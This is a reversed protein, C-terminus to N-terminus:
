EDSGGIIYPTVFVRLHCKFLFTSVSNPDIRLMELSVAVSADFDSLAYYTCSLLLMVALDQPHLSRLTTLLPLLQIRYIQEQSTYQPRSLGQPILTIGTPTRGPSDYLHYAYGLLADRSLSNGFPTSETPPLDAITSSSPRPLNPGPVPVSTARFSHRDAEDAFTRQM